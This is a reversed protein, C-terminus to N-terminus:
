LILTWGRNTLHDYLKEDLNSEEPRPSYSALLSSVPKVPMFPSEGASLSM